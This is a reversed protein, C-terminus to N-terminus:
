GRRPVGLLQIHRGIHREVAAYHRVENDALTSFFEGRVEPDHLLGGYTIHYLKSAEPFCAFARALMSRFLRPNTWVIVRVAELWSTDATKLHVRLGTHAGIPPYVSFKDSGSHISV